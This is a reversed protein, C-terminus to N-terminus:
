FPLEDNWATLARMLDPDPQGKGAKREAYLWCLYPRETAELEELTKGNHKGFALRYTRWAGDWADDVKKHVPLPKPTATIPTATNGDDDEAEILFLSALAYRRIYTIQSGLEQIKGTETLPFFSEEYVETSEPDVVITQVGVRNDRVVIPQLVVLKTKQLIPRLEGLLGNIEYYKSKFHPNTSDKVIPKLAQQVELIKTFLKQM